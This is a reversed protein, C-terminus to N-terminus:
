SHVVALNVLAYLNRPIVAGYFEAATIIQGEVGGMPVYWYILALELNHNAHIKFTISTQKYEFNPCSM